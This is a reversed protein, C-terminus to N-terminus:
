AWDAPASDAYLGELERAYKRLVVERRLKLSVTLEDAAVSFPGPLVVIKRVQEARSVDALAARVRRELLDLVEPRRALDEERGDLSIGEDCLARRVKDWAPVLLACLYSRGEGCIVAQEICPDAALLGEIQTPAVKKGNSLVLLEKKRGTIRLFGDADLAGLDGTHFWGDRIAEATAASNNWYGKMVHPGRTLVEGDAAIKVEVGPLPRGVTDIKHCEKSNFTIVPSTETLGYGQLVLVGAAAYAAATPPPLPAGGSSAWDFRPGFLKRLRRGTEAADATRLAALAKEYFRPVSAFHTPRVDELNQVLAEANEALALLTGSALCIYHDIVRGYIHSYPLWSLVVDDPAHPMVDLCALTNSLLNGHTLMVGKPNGTTGSTYMITALDDPGLRDERRRLEDALRPLARRGRQLFAAWSAVGHEPAPGDMMVVGRIGPMEGSTQLYKDLQVRNSVFLWRVGADALQFQVQRATLPAHPPVNVAGAALIAVDAAPWEARNEALLGVRDGPQIGGEVLAAAAAVADARYADWTLDHYLGDRKFRLAPRPGYREAQRRHLEALNRCNM